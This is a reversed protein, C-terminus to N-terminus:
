VVRDDYEQPTDSRYMKTVFPNYEELLGDLIFDIQDQKSISDEVVLLSTVSVKIWLEYKSIFMNGKNMLKLEVRLQRVWAKM